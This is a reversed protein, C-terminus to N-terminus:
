ATFTWGKLVAYGMIAPGALTAASQVLQLRANARPLDASPVISQVSASESLVGVVAACASVFTGFAFLPLSHLGLGAMAIAVGAVALVMGQKMGVLPAIRDAMVGAPLSVLLWASGQIAVILGVIEPGAGFLTAVVLPTAAVMLQDASRLGAAVITLRHFLAPLM